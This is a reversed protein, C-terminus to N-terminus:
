PFLRPERSTGTVRGSGATNSALRPRGWSCSRQEDVVNPKEMAARLRLHLWRILSILVEPTECFGFYNRWGRLYPALDRITTKIDIGKARRTIERIRQKFHDLAKPAIM